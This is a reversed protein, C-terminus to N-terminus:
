LDKVELLDVNATKVLFVPSNVVVDFIFNSKKFLVAVYPDVSELFEVKEKQDLQDLLGKRVQKELREKKVVIVRKDKIVKLVKDEWKEQSVKFEKIM